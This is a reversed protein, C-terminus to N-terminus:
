KKSEAEKKAKAAEQARVMYLGRGADAYLEDKKNAMLYKKLKEKDLSKGDESSFQQMLQHESNALYVGALISLSEQSRLVKVFELLDPQGKFAELYAKKLTNADKSNLAEQILEHAKLVGSTGHAMGILGSEDLNGVLEDYNTKVTEGLSKYRQKSSNQMAEVLAHTPTTQAAQYFAQRSADDYGLLSTYNKLLQPDAKSAFDRSLDRFADYHGAHDIIAKEYKIIDELAM